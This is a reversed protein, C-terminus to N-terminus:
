SALHLRLAAAAASEVRRRLPPAAVFSLAVGTIAGILVAVDSAGFLSGAIAGALLGTLPLGYLLCAGVLVWRAPLSVDVRDGVSLPAYDQVSLRTLQPMRRWLCTGECGRCRPADLLEVEVEGTAGMARVIGRVSLCDTTSPLKM